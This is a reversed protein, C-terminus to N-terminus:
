GNSAGKTLIQEITEIIVDMAGTGPVVSGRIMREDDVQSDDIWARCATLADELAKWRNSVDGGNRAMHVVVLLRLRGTLPEPTWGKWHQTWFWEVAECYARGAASTRLMPVGVPRGYRDKAQFINRYTNVSPALPLRISVVATDHREFLARQVVIEAETHAAAPPTAMYQALWQKQSKKKVDVSPTGAKAAPQPLHPGPLRVQMTRNTILNPPLGM